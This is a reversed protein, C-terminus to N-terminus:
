SPQQQHNDEPVLVVVVVVVVVMLVVVVVVLAVSNLGEKDFVIGVDNNVETYQQISNVSYSSGYKRIHIIRHVAVVVVFLQVSLLVDPRHVVKKITIMSELNDSFTDDDDSDDNDNDDNDDSDYYDSDDDDDYDSDDDDDDDDDDNDNM